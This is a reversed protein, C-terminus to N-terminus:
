DAFGGEEAAVATHPLTGEEVEEHRCGVLLCGLYGIGVVGAHVGGGEALHKGKFSAPPEDVSWADLAEACEVHFAFFHSVVEAVNETERGVAAVVVAGVCVLRTTGDKLSEVM